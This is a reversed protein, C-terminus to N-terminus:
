HLLQLVFVFNNIVSYLLTVKLFTNMYNLIIKVELQIVVSCFCMLHFITDSKMSHPKGNAYTVFYRGLAVFLAQRNSKITVLDSFKRPNAKEEKITETLWELEDSIERRGRLTQLSIRASDSDNKMLCFYPSEPMYSFFLLLLIPLCSALYAVTDLRLPTGLVNILLWGFVASIQGMYSFHNKTTTDAIENLYLPVVIYINSISIGALFRGIFMLVATRAVGVLLWSAIFPLSSYTLIKQRGCNDIVTWTIIAGVIGGIFPIITLYLSEERSITFFYNGKLLIPFLPSPWGHHM